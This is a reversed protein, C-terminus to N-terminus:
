SEMEASRRVRSILKTALSSNSKKLEKYKKDKALAEVGKAAYKKELADVIKAEEESKEKKTLEKKVEEKIARKLKAMKSEAFSDEEDDFLDADGMESNYNFMDDTYANPNSTGITSVYGEVGQQIDGRLASFPTNVVDDIDEAGDLYGLAIDEKEEYTLDNDWVSAASPTNIETLQSETIIGALKQMKRFEESLIQNKMTNFYQAHDM